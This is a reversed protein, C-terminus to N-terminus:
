WEILVDARGQHRRARSQRRRLGRLGPRRLRYWYRANGADGEIKHLVAHVWCSTPDAEDQQVIEHAANWDGALALDVARILDERTAMSQPRRLRQAERLSRGASLDRRHRRRRRRGAYATSMAAVPALPSACILPLAAELMAKADPGYLSLSGESDDMAIENGDVEGIGDPEIAQALM